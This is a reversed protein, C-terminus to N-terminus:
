AAHSGIPKEGDLEQQTIQPHPKGGGGHTCAHARGEGGLVPEVVCGQNGHSSGIAGEQDVVQVGPGDELLEGNM